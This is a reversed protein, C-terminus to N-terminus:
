GTFEVVSHAVCPPPTPLTRVKVQALACDTDDATSYSRGFVSSWTVEAVNVNESPETTCTGAKFLSPDAVLTVNVLRFVVESLNVTVPTEGVVKFTPSPARM